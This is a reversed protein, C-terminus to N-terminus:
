CIQFLFFYYIVIRCKFYLFTKYKSIVLYSPYLSKCSSGPIMKEKEKRPVFIRRSLVTYWKMMKQHFNSGQEVEVEEEEAEEVVEEVVEIEEVDEVVAM